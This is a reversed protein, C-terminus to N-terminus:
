ITTTTITTSSPTHQMVGHTFALLLLKSPNPYLVRLSETRCYLVCVYVMVMYIGDM